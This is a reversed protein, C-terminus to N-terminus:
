LGPAAVCDTKLSDSYIVRRDYPLLTFRSRPLIAMTSRQGNALFESRRMESAGDVRPIHHAGVPTVTDHKHRKLNLNFINIKRRM